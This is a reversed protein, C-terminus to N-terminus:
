ASAALRAGDGLPITVAFTSGRGPESDVALSGGLQTVLRKVIYLGLGVGSFTRSDSGDGQRFMEFIVPLQDAKIGVGTDRVTFSCREDDANCSVVVSGSPTFKLANGILNKLVIRLKRPDTRLHAAPAPEWRLTAGPPRPMAAYDAALSAVLDGVAVSELQVVDRGSDLRNLSLTAEILELLELGQRHVNRLLPLREDAPLDADSLMDTYGIIVSLPTRLEHSMTSVFESKLQTATRLEEVLRANELAVAAFQAIGFAIREDLTTFGRTADRNSASLLGIVEDGRRLAVYLSRGIGFQRLLVVAEAGPLHATVVQIAPRQELHELLPALMEGPMHLSQLAIVADEDHGHTSRVVFSGDQPERLVTSSADCGLLETTLQCLRQLIVPTNLSSIMEQGVRVLGTSVRSEDELRARSRALADESRARTIAVGALHAATQLLQWESPRPARRERYYMALTGLCESASTLIPASWCAALRHTAALERFETWRPDTAIDDVIVPVCRAAASGCSGVDPGIVIGDIAERYAPPLSPAAGHRLTRGDLLLVSCLMGPAREEVFLCLAHLVDSLTAGTAIMELLRSQGALFGAVADRERRRQEHEHAVWVSGGFALAVALSPYANRVFPDDHLVIGCVALTIAAGLTTWLQALGGWPIFTAAGVCGGLALLTMTLYDGRVVGSAGTWVMMLVITVVGILRLQAVSQARRVLMWGVVLGGLQVVKLSLLLPLLEAPQWRLDGAVFVLSSLICIVYAARLRNALHEQHEAM